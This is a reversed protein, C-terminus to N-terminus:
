DGIVKQLEDIAMIYGKTRHGVIVKTAIDSIYSHKRFDERAHIDSIHVEIIPMDGLLLLADRITISTHTYGAANIILGDYKGIAQQIFDIIEGEHNSQKATINIDHKAGHNRCNTIIDGLSDSGYIEPQRTGLMNLNPGNIILINYKKDKAM